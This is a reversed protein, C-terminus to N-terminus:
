HLSRSIYIPVTSKCLQSSSAPRIPKAMYSSLVTAPLPSPLTMHFRVEVLYSKSGSVTCLYEIDTRAYQGYDLAAAAQLQALTLHAGVNASVTSGLNSANIGDLMSLTPAFFNQQTYGSCTGHETWEHRELDSQTGPMEVTLEQETSAQLVVAPLLTWKGAQDNAQDAASVGCYSGSQPWLGHLSFHSADWRSSTQSQCEPKSQNSYCFEPEWSIALAYNEVPSAAQVTSTAVTASAVVVSSIVIRAARSAATTLSTTM